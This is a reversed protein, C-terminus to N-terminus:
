RNAMHMLLQGYDELHRDSLFHARAHRRARRGLLAMEDSRALLERLTRGFVDLDHPDELLIGTGPAVQDVIGGVASAVVPRSKWMAETVTLGFGEQFSKQVVVSAHRQAANVMLANTEIDDMPLTVLRITGRVQHPLAEWAALCETLVGRGEPDDDVGDVAPGILALRADSHGAVHEAFGHLVGVMDKLPDWRCVQLVVRDGPAFPGADGLVASRTGTREDPLLGTRGLLSTVRGPRLSRNKPSLPDISPLIVHVDSSALQPPVYARRSFVFTPCEALWPLLFAWAEDTHENPHDAGIHCRWAVRAGRRELHGALGATQPDHLFVIDGPRIRQDLAEMNARLVAEYHDSELRGLEGGDGPAGHMRNHLRKTIKFFGADAGIVSWRSDVGMGKAYGVLVSLMEAVGGGHATSSVNWVRRSGLTRRVAVAAQELGASRAPGVLRALREVSRPAVEVDRLVTLGGEQGGLGAEEHLSSVLIM